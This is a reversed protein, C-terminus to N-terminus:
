RGKMWLLAGQGLLHRCSRPEGMPYVHINAYCELGHSLISILLPQSHQKALREKMISSEGKRLLLCPGYPLSKNDNATGNSISMKQKM